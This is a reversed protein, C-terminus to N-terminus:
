VLAPALVYSVHLYLFIFVCYLCCRRATKEETKHYPSNSSYITKTGAISSIDTKISNSKFLKHTKM